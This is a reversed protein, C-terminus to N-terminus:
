RQIKGSYGSHRMLWGRRAVSWRSVGKWSGHAAARTKRESPLGGEWVSFGGVLQMPDGDDDARM